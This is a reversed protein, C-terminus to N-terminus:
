TKKRALVHLGFCLFESSDHGKESLKGLLELMQNIASQGNEDIQMGAYDNGVQPIRRVEQALYEFYNGNHQLDVIEFNLKELWYEYFYRSYGTQYFYPAFHTLSCFPATVILYGGSKLLRALESLANVPHPVHELVEICMVADFSGDPEPIRTIDSIIDLKTQDWEGTQLGKGDGQGNYQAFDQSVYNLHSCLPKYRLEGAGADLIRSGASIKQLTDKIWGDRTNQNKAGVLINEPAISVPPVPPFVGLKRRLWNKLNYKLRQVNAEKSLIFCEV